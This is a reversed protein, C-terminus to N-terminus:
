KNGSYDGQIEDEDESEQDFERQSTADLEEDEGDALM